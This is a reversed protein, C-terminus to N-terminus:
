RGETHPDSHQNVFNLLILTVMPQYYSFLQQINQEALGRGFATIIIGFAGEM